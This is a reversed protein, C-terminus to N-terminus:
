PKEAQPQAQAKAKICPELPSMTWGRAERQQEVKPHRTLYLAVVVRGPAVPIELIQVDKGAFREIKYFQDDVYACRKDANPEWQDPIQFDLHVSRKLLYEPPAIKYHGPVPIFAEGHRAVWPENLGHMDLTYQEMYYPLAGATTAALRLQDTPEFYARLAKGAEIWQGIRDPKEEFPKGFLHIGWTPTTTLYFIFGALIHIVALASFALKPKPARQALWLAQLPLLYGFPVMFRLDMFDGGVKIVYALWLAQTLLLAGALADVKAKARWDRFLLAATAVMMPVTASAGMYLLVYYVGRLAIDDVQTKAWYTNPLIAGYYSLKWGIWAGMLLAVPAGLAVLDAAIEKLSLGERRQALLRWLAWLGLMFLLLASDMRTLGALGVLTSLQLLRGRELRGTSPASWALWWAALVLLGQLGTEMGTTAFQNTTLHLGLMGVVGAAAWARGQGLKAGLGLSAVFVVLGVGGMFHEASLGSLPKLMFLLTWLFNTYGEVREGINYVLGHGQLAMEAFRLSIYADDLIIFRKVALVVSAVAVAGTLGWLAREDRAAREPVESM